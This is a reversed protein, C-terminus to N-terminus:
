FKIEEEMPPPVFPKSDQVFIEVPLEIADTKLSPSFYVSVRKRAGPIDSLTRSWRLDWATGRLLRQLNQSLNAITVIGPKVVIGYNRLVKDARDDGQKAVMEILEGISIDHAAGGQPTYWVLATGIHQALRLPDGDNKNLTHDSWDHKAIWEEAYELTVIDTKSLLYLGALMTGIQESARAGGIVKRAARKFTKINEMLANMNALTRAMLRSSFDPTIYETIMALLDEYDQMASPKRNKKIVMFSIRNEDATKNVPPNIAVFCACFNAKFPSQGFKMVTAGTSAKRALEIVSLMAEKNREGEAEDFILPRGNYGMHQRIAAETTGGDAHLAINGVVQNIIKKQVTSKGSESEGTVYIHPRYDLAACIPAIVLWGALLSGSLKNEWTVMECIQRLKHSEQNTLPNESPTILRAAAVYTYYSELEDFAIMKGDVFLRDGCHLVVRGNDLWAGAGRVRDEEQFVGRRKSTQIMANSALLSMKAPSIKEGGFAMEWENLDGLQLLNQMSHAGANLAVIQRGAFPFYFYLGNNYGLVKFKMGFDGTPLSAYFDPEERLDEFFDGGDPPPEHPQSEESPHRVASLEQSTAAALRARIPEMGDSSQIDNFDTRKAADNPPIDPYIVHAGIKVAAARAKDIGPNQLLRAARWEVWRQDDGPVEKAVIGKPEKGWIFTWQDNDSVIVIRADPYKLRMEQAVPDINGANFAVIVPWGTAERITRGTAYGECIGITSKDDDKHALAAYGGHVRGGKSFIKSGDQRIYQLSWLAGSHWVPIILLDRWVRTWEGGVGKKELYPHPGQAAAAWIRQAKAQAALEEAKRRNESEIREIEMRAAWAAREEPSLKKRSKSSFKHPMGERSYVFRGFGFDGDIKLQYRLDTKKEGNVALRNWKDDAKIDSVRNPKFGAACLCDAFEQLIDM